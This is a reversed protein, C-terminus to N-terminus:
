SRNLGSKSKGDDEKKGSAAWLLCGPDEKRLDATIIASNSTALDRSGAQNGEEKDPGSRDPTSGTGIRGALRGTTGRSRRAAKQRITRAM